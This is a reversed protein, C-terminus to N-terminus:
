TSVHNRQAIRIRLVHREYDSFPSRGHLATHNNLLQLSDSEMALQLLRDPNNMAQDVLGIAKRLEPTDLEPYLQLGRNLTDIRYRVEPRRHFISAFTVETRDGKGDHTFVAPIRFPLERGTLYDIAWRGEDTAALENRLCELSRIRSVGGGCRAPAVVYLMMYREPEPFYQTDTHLDAEYPHESFTSVSNDAVKEKRVKVDWVVRRDVKDTATPEGLAVSLAFLVAARDHLPLHSIGVRPIVIASLTGELAEHLESALDVLQPARAALDTRLEDCRAPPVLHEPAINGGYHQQLVALSAAIQAADLQALAVSAIRHGILKIKVLRREPKAISTVLTM